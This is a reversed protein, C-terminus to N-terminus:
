RVSLCQRRRRYQVLALALLGTLWGVLSAPEPVLSQRGNVTGCTESLLLEWTFDAYSDGRGTLQLSAGAPTTPPESVGIDTSVLGAAVGDTATFEGEYSLFQLVDGAQALALGDPAGNQLIIDLTYFAFSGVVDRQTFTSLPIPGAYATGNGGNYLTLTVAALDHLGTPAVVEVFEGVDAGDNDYHFENIFVASDIYSGLATSGLFFWTFFVRYM